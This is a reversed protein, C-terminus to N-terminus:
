DQLCLRVLGLRERVLGEHFISALLQAVGPAAARAAGVAQHGGVAQSGAAQSGAAQGSNRRPGREPGPRSPWSEPAKGGDIIQGELTILWGYVGPKNADIRVVYRGREALLGALPRVTASLMSVALASPGSGSHGLHGFPIGVRVSIPCPTWGGDLTDTRVHLAGRTSPEPREPM